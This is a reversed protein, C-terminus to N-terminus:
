ENGLYHRKWRDLFQIFDYKAEPHDLVRHGVSPYIVVKARKFNQLAEAAHGTSQASQVQMSKPGFFEDQHGFLNLFPTTEPDGAIKVNEIYYSADCDWAVAIRATVGDGQWNAATVAGESLGALTTFRRDVMPWDGLQAMLYDVEEGRLNHIRQYIEPHDPTTYNPRDDRAHTDPAIVIFGLHEVIWSAIVKEQGRPASGGLFILLPAKTKTTKLNAIQQKLDCFRGEIVAGGTISPPLAVFANAYAVKASM